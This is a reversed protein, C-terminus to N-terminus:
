IWKKNYKDAIAGGFPALLAMPIYGLCMLLGVLLGSNTAHKVVIAEAVLFGEVGIMSVFAGSWLM